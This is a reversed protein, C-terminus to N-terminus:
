EKLLKKIPEYESLPTHNTRNDYAGKVRVFHPGKGQGLQEKLYRAATGEWGPMDGVVSVNEPKYGHTRMWLLFVKAKAVANAQTDALSEDVPAPTIARFRDTRIGAFRLDTEIQSGQEILINRLSDTDLNDFSRETEGRLYQMDDANYTVRRAAFLNARESLRELTKDTDPNRGRRSSMNILTADVDFFVAREMSKGPKGAMMDRIDPSLNSLTIRPNRPFINKKGGDLLIGEIIDAKDVSLEYDQDQEDVGIAWGSDLAILGFNNMGVTDGGRKMFQPDSNSSAEWPSIRAPGVRGSSRTLYGVEYRRPMSELFRAARIILPTIEPRDSVYDPIDQNTSFMQYEKAHGRMEDRFIGALGRVVSGSGHNDIFVAPKKGIGENQMYEAVDEKPGKELTRRPMDVYAIDNLGKKKAMLYAARMSYGIFVKTHGSFRDEIDDIFGNIIPAAKKADRIRNTFEIHERFLKKGGLDSTISKIKADLDDNPPVNASFDKKGYNIGAM